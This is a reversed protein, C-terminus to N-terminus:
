PIVKDMFISPKQTLLLGWIPRFNLVELFPIKKNIHFTAGAITSAEWYVSKCNAIIDIDVWKNAFPFSNADIYIDVFPTPICNLTNAGWAVGNWVQWNNPDSWLQNGADVFRMKNTATAQFTWNNSNGGGNIGNTVTYSRGGSIDCNM